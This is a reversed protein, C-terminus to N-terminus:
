GLNLKLSLNYRFQLTIQRNRRYRIIFEDESKKLGKIGILGKIEMIAENLVLQDEDEDEIGIIRMIDENRNKSSRYELVSPSPSPILGLLVIENKVVSFINKPEIKDVDNCQARLNNIYVTYEENSKSPRKLIDDRDYLAMHYTYKTIENYPGLIENLMKYFEKDTECYLGSKFLGPHIIMEWGYFYNEYIARNNKIDPEAYSDLISWVFHGKSQMLNYYKLMIAKFGLKDLDKKLKLIIDKTNM